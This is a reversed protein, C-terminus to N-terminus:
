KIASHLCQTNPYDTTNRKRNRAGLIIWTPILIITLYIIWPYKDLYGNYILALLIIALLLFPLERHKFVLQSM